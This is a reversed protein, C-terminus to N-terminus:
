RLIELNALPVFVHEQIGLEVIAGLVRAGTEIARTRSPIDVITGASGMSPARTLRVRSGVSFPAGPQVQSPPVGDTPLPIIIEPRVMNRRLRMEGSISAERGDNTQLLRFLPESMAVAGMGETVVVPCPAKEAAALAGPELGGIVIGRIQFEEAQEFIDSALGMGGVLIAGYCSPDIMSAELPQSPSDALCRVVGTSEGGTGWAGQIIAGTTEIVVGHNAIVRTVVGPVYAKLEFLDPETELLMRGRGIATVSGDIPSKVSRLAIRGRKAVVQGKAVTDGRQVRLYRKTQSTPVDLLRAVSLIHFGGPLSTQGVIRGPEVREGVEVLIEGPAPLFRERRVQALPTAQADSPCYM